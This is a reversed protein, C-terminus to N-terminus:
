SFCDNRNPRCEKFFILEVTVTNNEEEIYELLEFGKDIFLKYEKEQMKQPVFKSFDNPVFTHIDIEVSM